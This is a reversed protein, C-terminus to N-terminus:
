RRGWAQGGAHGNAILFKLKELYYNWLTQIDPALEAPVGAHRLSVLVEADTQKLEMEFSSRTAEVIREAGPSGISWAWSSTFGQTSRRLKGHLAPFEAETLLYVTWTGDPRVAGGNGLWVKFGKKELLIALIDKVTTAEVVVGATVTARETPQERSSLVGMAERLRTFATLGDPAVDSNSALAQPARFAEGVKDSRRLLQPPALPAPWVEILHFEVPPLGRIDDYQRSRAADRGRASFRIRYDHFAPTALQLTSPKPGIMLDGVRMSGANVTFSVEAVETWQPDITRPHEDLRRLEVLITDYSAGTFVTIAGTRVEIFGNGALSPTEEPELYGDGYLVFQSTQM